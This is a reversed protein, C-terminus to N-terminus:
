FGLIQLIIKHNKYYITSYDKKEDLHVSYFTPPLSSNHPKHIINLRKIYIILSIVVTIFTLRDSTFLSIRISHQKKCNTIRKLTPLPIYQPENALYM